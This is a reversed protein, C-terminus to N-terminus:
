ITGTTGTIGTIGTTGTTGTGTTGTADTADSSTTAGTARTAGTADTADPSTTAGTARAYRPVPDRDAVNEAPLDINEGPQYPPPTGDNDESREAGVPATDNRDSNNITQHNHNGQSTM